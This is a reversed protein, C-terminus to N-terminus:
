VAAFTSNISLDVKSEVGPDSSRHRIRDQGASDRMLCDKALFARAKHDLGGPPTRELVACIFGSRRWRCGRPRLDHEFRDADAQNEQDGQRGEPDQDPMPSLGDDRRDPLGRQSGEAFFL